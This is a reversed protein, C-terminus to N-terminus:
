IVALLCFNWQRIHSINQHEHSILRPSRARIAWLSHIDFWLCEDWARTESRTRHLNMGISSKQFTIAHNRLVLSLYQASRRLVEQVIRKKMVSPKALWSNQYLDDCPCCVFWQSLQLYSDTKSVKSPRVLKPTKASVPLGWHDNKLPVNFCTDDVTFQCRSNWFM